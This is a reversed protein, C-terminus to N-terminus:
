EDRFRITAPSSLWAVITSLSRRTQVAVDIEGVGDRFDDDALVSHQAVVLELPLALLREM